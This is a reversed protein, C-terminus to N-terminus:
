RGAVQTSKRGLPVSHVTVPPEGALSDPSDQLPRPRGVRLTCRFGPLVRLRTTVLYYSKYMYTNMPLKGPYSFGSTFCEGIDGALNWQSRSHPVIFRSNKVM